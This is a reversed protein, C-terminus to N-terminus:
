PKWDPPALTTEIPSVYLKGDRIETVRGAPGHQYFDSYVGNEYPKPCRFADETGPAEWMDGDREDVCLLIPAGCRCITWGRRAWEMQRLCEDAMYRYEHAVPSEKTGEAVDQLRKALEERISM